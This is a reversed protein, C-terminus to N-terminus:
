TALMAMHLKARAAVYSAAAPTELRRKSWGMATNLLLSRLPGKRM